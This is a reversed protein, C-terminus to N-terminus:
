RVMRAVPDLWSAVYNTTVPYQMATYALLPLGVWLLARGLFTTWSLKPATRTLASMVDNREFVIIAVFALALVAMLIVLFITALLREPQFAYSAVALGCLLSGGVALVLLEKLEGMVPYFPMTEAAAVLEEAKELWALAGAADREAAGPDASKPWEGGNPWACAPASWFWRLVPELRRSRMCAEQFVHEPDAPAYHNQAQPESVIPVSGSLLRKAQSAWVLFTPTTRDLWDLIDTLCAALRDRDPVFGPPRAGATLQAPLRRMAATLREDYRMGLGKLRGRLDNWTAAFLALATTVVTAMAVFALTFLRDGFGGELTLVPDLAFCVGMTLVTAGASGLIVPWMPPPHASGGVASRGLEIWNWTGRIRTRKLHILFALYM